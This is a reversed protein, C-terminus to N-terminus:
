KLFGLKQFSWFIICYTLKGIKTDFIFLKQPKQLRFYTCKPILIARLFPDYMTRQLVMSGNKFVISINDWPSILYYISCFVILLWFISTPFTTWFCFQLCESLHMFLLFPFSYLSHLSPTKHLTIAPLAPYDWMCLDLSMFVCVYCVCFDKVFSLWMYGCIM